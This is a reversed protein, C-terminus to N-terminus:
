QESEISKHIMQVATVANIFQHPYPLKRMGRKLFLRQIVIHSTALYLYLTLCDYSQM